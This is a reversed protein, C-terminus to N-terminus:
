QKTFDVQFLKFCFAASSAPLRGRIIKAACNHSSWPTVAALIGVQATRTSARRVYVEM